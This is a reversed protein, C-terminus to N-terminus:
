DLRSVRRGESRAKIFAAAIKMMFAKSFRGLPKGDSEIYRSREAIDCNYEDVVIWCRKLDTLGARRCEIASVELGVRDSTPPKTTIALALHTLGDRAGRVAVVCAPRSKRGEM